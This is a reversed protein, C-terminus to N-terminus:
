DTGARTRRRVTVRCGAPVAPHAGQGWYCFLVNTATATFYIMFKLSAWSQEVDGGFGVAYRHNGLGGFRSLIQGRLATSNDVTPNTHTFRLHNLWITPNLGTVDLVGLLGQQWDTWRCMGM